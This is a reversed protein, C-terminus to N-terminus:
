RAHELKVPDLDIVIVMHCVLACQIANGGCGVFPDVVVDCQMREAIHRATVEPTVSYWGEKDMSVGADYKSFYRYRQGWYKSPVGPLPSRSRPGWKKVLNEDVLLPDGALTGEDQGATKGTGPAKKKKKKNGKSAKKHKQGHQGQNKGKRKSEEAQAGADNEGSTEQESVNVSLLEAFSVEGDADLIPSKLQGTAVGNETCWKLVEPSSVQKIWDTPVTAENGYGLFTVDIKKAAQDERRGVMQVLEDQMALSSLCIDEKGGDNEGCDPRAENEAAGPVAIDRM